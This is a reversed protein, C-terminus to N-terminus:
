SKKMKKVVKKFVEIQKESLKRFKLYNIKINRLFSNEKYFEEPIDFMKKMAPNKIKGKLENKQCDYCLAYYQKYTVVVYNKKCKNCLQKYRVM